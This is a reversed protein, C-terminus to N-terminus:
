DLDFLENRKCKGNLTHLWETAHNVEQALVRFLRKDENTVAERYRADVAMLRREYMKILQHVNSTVIADKM